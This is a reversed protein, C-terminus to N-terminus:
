RRVIEQIDECLVTIEKEAHYTEDLKVSITRSDKNSLIKSLETFKVDETHSYSEVHLTKGNKKIIVIAM